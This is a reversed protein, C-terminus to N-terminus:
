LAGAATTTLPQLEVAQLLPFPHRLNGQPDKRPLAIHAQQEFRRQVAEIEETPISHWDARSAWRILLIGEEHEPDWFLERGLFGPQRKLWPDWIQRELELWAQRGEAPVKLRLHEVVTEPTAEPAAEPTPRELPQRTEATGFPAEQADGPLGALLIFVLVASLILRPLGFHRAASM